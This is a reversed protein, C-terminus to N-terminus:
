SCGDPWRLHQNALVHDLVIPDSGDSPILRVSVQDITGLGFHAIPLVGASFGQTVTIERAGILENDDRVEVRWGIGFGHDAGVSIELWNGSDTENRLLISPLSPNWQLLFVDLRGDRDYDTSPAGVWYNTDGLGEPTSFMPLGDELGQNVFLAPGDSAPASALLDTWGDNNFDNLEVHPAKTPLPTLGVADTVDEFRGDGRNLYLRVPVREGFDVTSNYHQGVAIDLLGDRNVDAASLGAVDDEDGYREWAFVDSDNEAFGGDGDSLFMRNSDSVFLDQSGDGNLDAVLLGLGHVGNPIGANTTSDSFRLGGENHLLVSSGGAFRDETIFLDYLGDKDYDLVGVTRGGLQDPFGADDVPILVGDENELIQTPTEGLMPDKINRSVVLDLDGDNDLDVSAGGSTRSFTEPISDDQTFGNDGNVLLRDPSPGTAGRQLYIDADKTAFTGFYLDPRDDGNVDTWIAAHGYMGILPDILGLEETVDEFVVTDAEGGANTTWCTM